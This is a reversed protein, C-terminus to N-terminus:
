ANQNAAGGIIVVGGIQLIPVAQTEPKTLDYFKKGM